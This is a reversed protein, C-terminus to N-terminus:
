MYTGKVVYVFWPGQGEEAEDDSGHDFRAYSDFDTRRNCCRNAGHIKFHKILAHELMAAARQCHDCYIITMTKWHARDNARIAQRVYAFSHEYFRAAPDITMGIKFRESGHVQDVVSIGHQIYDDGGTLCVIMNMDGFLKEFMARTRQLKLTNGHLLTAVEGWTTQVRPGYCQVPQSSSPEAPGGPLM